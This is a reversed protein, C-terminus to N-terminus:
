MVWIVCIITLLGIGFFGNPTPITYTTTSFYICSGNDTIKRGINGTITGKDDKVDGWVLAVYKRDLDRDAFKKSLVKNPKFSITM